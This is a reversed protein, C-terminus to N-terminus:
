NYTCTWVVTVVIYYISIRSLFYPNTQHIEQRTYLYRIHVLIIFLWKLILVCSYWVLSPLYDAYALIVLVNFFDM